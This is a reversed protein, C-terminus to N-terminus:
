SFAQLEIDAHRCHLHNDGRGKSFLYIFLTQMHIWLFPNNKVVRVICIIM